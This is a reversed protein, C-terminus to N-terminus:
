LPLKGLIPNLTMPKVTLLCSRLPSISTSGTGKHRQLQVDIVQHVLYYQKRLPTNM